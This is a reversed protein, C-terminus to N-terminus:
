LCRKSVQLPNYGKPNVGEALMKAKSTGLRKTGIKWEQLLPM